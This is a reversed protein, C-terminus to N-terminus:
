HKLPGVRGPTSKRVPQQAAITPPACLTSGKRDVSRLDRRAPPARGAVIESGYRLAPDQAVAALGMSLLLMVFLFGSLYSKSNNM